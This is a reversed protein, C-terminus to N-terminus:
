MEEARAKIVANVKQANLRITLKSMKSKIRGFSVKYSIM